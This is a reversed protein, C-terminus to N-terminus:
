ISIPHGTTKLYEVKSPGRPIFCWGPLTTSGFAIGLRHTVSSRLWFTPVYQTIAPGQMWSVLWFDTWEHGQYGSASTHCFATHYLPQYRTKQCLAGQATKHLGAKKSDHKPSRWNSWHDLRNNTLREEFKHTQRIFNETQWVFRSNLLAAVSVPFGKARSKCPKFM